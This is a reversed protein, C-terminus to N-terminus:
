GEDKGKQILWLGLALVLISPLLAGVMRSVGLGSPDSLAPGRSSRTIGGIFLGLALVCCVAGAIRKGSM